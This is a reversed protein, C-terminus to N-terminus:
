EGDPGKVEVIRVPVEGRHEQVERFLGHAKGILELAKQQDHLEIKFGQRTPTIGKILHLKGSLRAKELDLMIDGNEKVTVFDEMTAKAQDALRLLVEDAGMAKESIRAQIAKQVDTNELLRHATTHASKQSYGAAIAARRANWCQLYEEVFAQRKRTISM